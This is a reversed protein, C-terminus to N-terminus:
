SGISVSGASPWSHHFCCAPVERASASFRAAAERVAASAWFSSCM